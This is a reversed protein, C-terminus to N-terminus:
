ARRVSRAVSPPDVSVDMDPMGVRVLVRERRIELDGVHLRCTESSLLQEGLAPRGSHFLDYQYLHTEVSEIVTVHDFHHLGM